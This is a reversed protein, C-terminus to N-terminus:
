LSASCLRAAPPACSQRLLSCCGRVCQVAPLLPVPPNKCTQEREEFSTAPKFGQKAITSRQLQSHMLVHFHIRPCGQWTNLLHKVWFTKSQQHLQQGSDANVGRRAPGVHTNVATCAVRGWSVLHSSETPVTHLLATIPAVRSVAATSGNM